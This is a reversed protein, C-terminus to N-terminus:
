TAARENIKEIFSVSKMARGLHSTLIAQTVLRAGRAAEPSFGLAAGEEITARQAALLAERTARDL